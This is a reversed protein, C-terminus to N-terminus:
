DILVLSLRMTLMRDLAEEATAAHVISMEREFPWVQGLWHVTLERDIESDDVILVRLVHRKGAPTEMPQNLLRNM